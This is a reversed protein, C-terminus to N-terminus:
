RGAAAIRSTIPLPRFTNSPASDAEYTSLQYLGRREPIPRYATTLGVITEAAGLVLFGDPALQKAIRELIKSKTEANFYILVNRCFVIDFTGLQRYDEM